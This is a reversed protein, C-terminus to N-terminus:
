VASQGTPDDSGSRGSRGTRALYPYIVNLIFDRMALENDRAEDVVSLWASLGDRLEPNRILGLKGSAILADRSGSGPDFTGGFVAAVIATDMVAVPPVTRSRIAGIMRAVSEARAGTVEVRMALSARYGAFEQELGLLIKHAEVAERRDDWWADIGFALLISLVIVASEAVLRAWPISSRRPSGNAM